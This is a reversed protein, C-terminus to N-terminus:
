GGGPRLQALFAEDGIADDNALLFATGLIAILTDDAEVPLFLQALEAGDARARPLGLPLVLLSGQPDVRVQGTGINVRYTALSGAVVLDREYVTCRDAISLEPLARELVDRRVRASEVLEAFALEHWRLRLEDDGIDRWDSDLAVSSTSVFLDVDRMAESVVLAPVDGLALADAAKKGGARSFQLRGSVVVQYDGPIGDVMEKTWVADYRLEAQIGFGPFVRVAVASDAGGDVWVLLAPATWGRRKLLGRFLRYQLLRGAFRTSHDTGREDPTLRYTERYVQRVPQLIRRDFLASRWAAVETDSAAVPHWLAIAAEAPAAFPAGDLGVFADPEHGRLGSRTETGLDVNWVLSRGLVRLVPHRVYSACWDFLSWRPQEALLGDVRDREAALSAKAQKVLGQLEKM